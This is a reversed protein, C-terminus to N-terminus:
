WYRSLLWAVILLLPPLVLWLLSWETIGMSVAGLGGSESRQIQRQLSRFKLYGVAAVTMVVVAVWAAGALLIEPLSWARLSM